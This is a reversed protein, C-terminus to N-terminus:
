GTMALSAFCDMAGCASLHIAEDSRKECHGLLCKSLIGFVTKFMMATAFRDDTPAFIAAHFAPILTM